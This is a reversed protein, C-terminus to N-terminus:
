SVGMTADCDDLVRSISAITTEGHLKKAIAM